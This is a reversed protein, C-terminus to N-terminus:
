KLSCLFLRIYKSTARTHIYIHVNTADVHARAVCVCSVECIHGFISCALSFALSLYCFFFQPHNELALAFRHFVFRIKLAFESRAFFIVLVDAIAMAQMCTYFFFFIVDSFLYFSPKRACM